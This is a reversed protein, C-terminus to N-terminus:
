TLYHFQLVVSEGLIIQDQDQLFHGVQSSNLKFQSDEGIPQIKTKNGPPVGGEDAFLLFGGRKPDWELHAHIRSVFRNGPFEPDDHFIIHNTRVGGGSTTATKERGLNVRGDASTLIYEVAEARGGVVVLRASTHVVPAQPAEVVESEISLVLPLERYRIGLEPLQEQILTELVWDKPLNVAFNDAIRQIEKKLRDPEAVYVAAEYLHKETAAPAAFLKLTHIHAGEGGESKQLEEKIFQLIHERVLKVDMPHQDSSKKFLNFM